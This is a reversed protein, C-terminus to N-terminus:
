GNDRSERRHQRRGEDAPARSERRDERGGEHDERASDAEEPRSWGPVDLCNLDLKSLDM